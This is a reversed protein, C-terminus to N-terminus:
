GASKEIVNKCNPCERWGQKKVFKRAESTDKDSKCERGGSGESHAVQRCHRCTRTRCKPCHLTDRCPRGTTPSLSTSPPLFTACSPNSCYAPNPTSLELHLLTYKALTRSSLDSIGTLLNPSAPQGCCTFTQRTSYASKFAEKLDDECYWHDCQLRKMVGLDFREMCVVCERLRAIREREVREIEEQREVEMAVKHAEWYALIQEQERAEDSYLEEIMHEDEIIRAVEEDALRQLEQAVLRDQYEANEREVEIEDAVRQAAEEDRRLREARLRLQETCDDEQLIRAQLEDRHQQEVSSRADEAITTQELARATAEDRREQEAERSRVMEDVSNQHNADLYPIVALQQRQAWIAQERQWQGLRHSQGPVSPESSPNDQEVAVVEEYRPPEVPLQPRAGPVQREPSEPWTWPFQQERGNQSQSSESFHQFNGTDQNGQNAVSARRTFHLQVPGQSVRREQPSSPNVLPNANLKRPFIPPIDITPQQPSFGGVPRTQFPSWPLQNQLNPSTSISNLVSAPPSELIYAPHSRFPNTNQRPIQQIPELGTNSPGPRSSVFPNQYTIPAPKNPVNLYSRYPPLTQVAGQNGLNSFSWPTTPSTVSVYRNSTDVTKGLARSEPDDPREDESSESQEEIPDVAQENRPATVLLNSIAQLETPLVTVSTRRPHSFNRIPNISPGPQPNVNEVTLSNSSGIRFPNQHPLKKISPKKKLINPQRSANDEVLQSEQSSGYTCSPSGQPLMNNYFPNVRSEQFPSFTSPVYGPVLIPDHFDNAYPEPPSSLGLSRSPTQNYGRAVEGSEPSQHVEPAAVPKREIAFM